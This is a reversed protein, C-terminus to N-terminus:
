KKSSEIIMVAISHSCIGRREFGKCSCTWGGKSSKNVMYIPSTRLYEPHESKVSYVGNAIKSVSKKRILREAKKLVIKPFPKKDL